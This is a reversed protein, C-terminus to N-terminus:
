FLANIIINDFVPCYHVDNVNVFIVFSVAHKVATPSLSYCLVSTLEIFCYILIHLFPLV